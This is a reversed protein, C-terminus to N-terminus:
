HKEVISVDKETTGAKAVNGPRAQITKKTKSAPKAMRATLISCFAIINHCM